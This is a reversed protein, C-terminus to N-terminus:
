GERKCYARPTLGTWHKFARTFSRSETFGVIDAVQEVSLKE